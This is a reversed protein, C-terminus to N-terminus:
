LYSYSAFPLLEPAEGVVSSSPRRCHHPPRRELETAFAALARPPTHAQFQAFPSHPPTMPNSLYARTAGPPPEGTAMAM